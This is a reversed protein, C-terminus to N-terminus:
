ISLQNIHNPRFCCYPFQVIHCFIHKMQLRLSYQTFNAYFCAFANFITGILVSRIDNLNVQGDFHAVLVTSSGPSRAEAAAKVLVENPTLDKADKSTSIIRNSSDM